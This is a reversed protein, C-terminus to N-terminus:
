LFAWGHSRPILALDGFSATSFRSLICYGLGVGLIVTIYHALCPLCFNLPPLCWPYPLENHPYQGGPYTTYLVLPPKGSPPPSSLQVNERGWVLLKWELILWRSFLGTLKYLLQIYITWFRLPTRTIPKSDLTIHISHGKVILINM